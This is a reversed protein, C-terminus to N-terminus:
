EVKGPLCVGGPRLGARFFYCGSAEQDIAVRYLPRSYIKKDRRQYGVKYADFILAEVRIIMTQRYCPDIVSLTVKAAKCVSYDAVQLLHQNGAIPM